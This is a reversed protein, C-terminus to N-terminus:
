SVTQKDFVENATSTHSTFFLMMAGYAVITIVDNYEVGHILRTIVAGLMVLALLLAGYPRAKPILLIGGGVTEFVGIMYLFWTPYGWEEFAPGWFGDIDFKLCGNRIFMEAFYVSVIWLLVGQIRSLYSRVMMVTKAIM